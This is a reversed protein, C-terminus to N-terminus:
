ENEHGDRRDRRVGSGSEEGNRKGMAEGVCNEGM